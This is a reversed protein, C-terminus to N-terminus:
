FSVNLSCRKNYLHYTANVIANNYIDYIEMLQLYYAYMYDYSHHITYQTMLTLVAATTNM